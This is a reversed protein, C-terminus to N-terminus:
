PPTYTPGYLRDSVFSVRHRVRAWARCGPHAAPMTLDAPVIHAKVVRALYDRGLELKIIVTREIHMVEVDRFRTAFEVFITIGQRLHINNRNTVPCATLTCSM